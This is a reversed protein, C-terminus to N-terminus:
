DNGSSQDDDRIDLQQQHDNMTSPIRPNSARDLEDASPEQSDFLGDDSRTMAQEAELM